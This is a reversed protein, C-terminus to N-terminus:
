VHTGGNFIITVAIVILTAAFCYLIVMLMLKTVFLRFENPTM